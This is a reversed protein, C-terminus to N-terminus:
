VWPFNLKYNEGLAYVYQGGLDDGGYYFTVSLFRQM